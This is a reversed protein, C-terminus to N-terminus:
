DEIPDYKPTKDDLLDMLAEDSILNSFGSLESMGESELEILAKVLSEPLLSRPQNKLKKALKNLLEEYPNHM